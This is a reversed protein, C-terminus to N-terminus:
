GPSWIGMDIMFMKGPQLRGKAVIKAPDIDVVGVKCASPNEGVKPYEVPITFPYISDTNNIMLFNKIKTADLQWYAISKGDPSWRFGDRCDFEEEYVWDSAGNIIANIKGDRTVRAIMSM